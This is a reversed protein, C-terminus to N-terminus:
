LHPLFISFTTGQEVESTVSISGEHKEIIKKVIDLGLGSGEGAPKTTFFPEFIKAQIDTPIGKGTDTICVLIGNEQPMVEITLTGQYDMAQLANHIINIWVQNLEDPYGLVFPLSPAYRRIVEIGRKIQNHYLTLVTELGETLQTEVKENTQSYRAFNKLAFVIKSAHQIATEITKSSRQLDSLQYATQLIQESDAHQLLPLMPQIDGYIGMEVLTDAIFDADEMEHEELQRIVQRKLRREEKVSLVKDTDISQQLLAMFHNQQQAKALSEFFNPLQKLQQNLFTSVSGVASRIAGLPTNIEHAVGAVLQGLAAMKESQILEEQAAKLHTLTTQLEQNTEHLADETQKRIRNEEQLQQTQKQLHQNQQTLRQQLQHLKLHVNVRALLEDQQIPKTIYDAAGLQLGKIKHKIEVLATMFIIPINRTNEQSKLHQCVEFGNIGPMMIDLLIIDPNTYNATEIGEEGNEAILVKFGKESLCNLLLKVNDPTDDIILLTGQHSTTM